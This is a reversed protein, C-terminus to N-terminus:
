SKLPLQVPAGDRASRYIATIIEIARRGERGDVTPEGGSELSKIFDAIQAEHGSQGFSLPDSAAQDGAVSEPSFRQRLEEDEPQEEAFEWKLLNQDTAIITGKEGHIEFKREMGPYVSTTCEIVGMAGSKYRVAAVATDEVEIREHVLTNTFATVSEAPGMFWQILDIGHIGQNMCAGGGDFEWTGRWDGSDYYEQSRWWKCYADGVTVRGLRGADIAGKIAAAVASFRLPFIACLKVGNDDCAKILEDARELTVEIPKECVVHKGAKAAAVCPDLHLGSPTCVCVVDVADQAMLEDMTKYATCDHEAALKEAREPVVDVGGILRANPISKIANAHATSIGGCGVIGFGFERM